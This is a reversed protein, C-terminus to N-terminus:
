AKRTALYYVAQDSKFTHPDAHAWSSGSATFDVKRSATAAASAVTSPLAATGDYRFLSYSEGATLGSVTLNAHLESAREWSRVNPEYVAGDTSLAVAFTEGTKQVALGTVALGYTVESDFCPYMENKGFGPRADRCNGQM